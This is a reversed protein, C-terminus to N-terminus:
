RSVAGLYHDLWESVTSAVDGTALSHGTEFVVHKKEASGLLQFLPQQSTELPRVFDYLGNLMLVPVRLRPAFNIPDIEPAAARNLGSGQLIAAKFRSELPVLIVGADGGLSTGYFAIRSSDVDRRTSLYDISRGIDRSWAVRLDRAAAPGHVDPVAREYTGKYIPYMVARGTSLLLSVSTLSMDRSSALRTSDSSPFLVVTQFPPTAIKPLFLYARVRENVGYAADFEITDRDWAPRRETSTVSANLPRPDYAYVRRYVDFIADPVPSPAQLDGRVTELHVAATESSPLPGDYQV